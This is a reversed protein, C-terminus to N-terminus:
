LEGRIFAMDSIDIVGRETRSFDIEVAKVRTLDVGAFASLPFRIQNMIVHGATRRGRIPNALVDNGVDAAGV